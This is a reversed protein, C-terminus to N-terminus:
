CSRRWAAGGAQASGSSDSIPVEPPVAAQAEDPAPVQRRTVQRRFLTYLRMREAEDSTRKAIAQRVKACAAPRHTLIDNIADKTTEARITGDVALSAYWGGATVEKRIDTASKGGDEARRLSALPRNPRHPVANM